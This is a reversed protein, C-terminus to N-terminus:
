ETIREMLRRLVEDMLEDPIDEGSMALERLCKMRQPKSLDCEALERVIRDIDSKSKTLIFSGPQTSQAVVRACLRDAGRAQDRSAENAAKGFPSV